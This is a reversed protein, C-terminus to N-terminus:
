RGGQELANGMAQAVLKEIYASPILVRGKLKGSPRIAPIEGSKIKLSVTPRSFHLIKAAEAVSFFQPM